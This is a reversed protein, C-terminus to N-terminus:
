PVYLSKTHLINREEKVRRLVDENRVRNSRSINEDERLVVNGFKGPMESEKGLYGLELAM